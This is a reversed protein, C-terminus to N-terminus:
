QAFQALCAEGCAEVEVAYAMLPEQKTDTGLVINAFFVGAALVVVLDITKSDSTTSALSSASSKFM